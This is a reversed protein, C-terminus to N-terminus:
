EVEDGGGKHPLPPSLPIFSQPYSNLNYKSLLCSLLYIESM